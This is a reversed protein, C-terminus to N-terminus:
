YTGPREWQTQSTLSNFYYPTGDNTFQQSWGNPLTLPNAEVAVSTGGGGTYGEAGYGTSTQAGYGTSTTNATPSTFAAYGANSSPYTAAPSAVAPTSPSSMGGAWSAVAPQGYNSAPSAPSAWANAQAGGAGFSDFQRMELKNSDKVWTTSQQRHRSCFYIVIALVILAVIGGAVAAAIIIVMSNSSSSSGGGGPVPTVPDNPQGGPRTPDPTFTVIPTTPDSPLSGSKGSGDSLLIPATYDMYVTGVGNWAYSAADGLVAQLQAYAQKLESVQALQTPNLSNAQLFQAAHREAIATHEPKIQAPHFLTTRPEIMNMVTHDSTAGMGIEMLSNTIASTLRLTVIAVTSSPLAIDDLEMRDISLGAAVCLDTAITHGFDARDDPNNLFAVGTKIVFQTKLTWYLRDCKPGFWGPQCICQTCDGNANGNAGCGPDCKCTGTTKDYQYGARSCVCNANTGTPCEPDGNADAVIQFPALDGGAGCTTTCKSPTNCSIGQWGKACQCFTGSPQKTAACRGNTCSTADCKPTQCKDGTYNDPCICQGNSCTGSGCSKSSCSDGIAFLPSSGYISGSAFVTIFYDNGAPLNKMPLGDYGTGVTWSSSLRLPKNVILYRSVPNLGSKKGLVISVSLVKGTTNWQISLFDGFPIVGGVGVRGTGITVDFISPVETCNQGSFFPRCTCAGYTPSTKDGQECIGDKYGRKGYCVDVPNLCDQQTPLKPNGSCFSDDVTEQLVAANPSINACYVERTQTGPGCYPTCASWARAKWLYNPCLYTNCDRQAAPKSTQPCLGPASVAGANSLCTITALQVGGGCPKNCAGYTVNWYYSACPDTNCPISTALGYKADAADGDAGSINIDPCLSVNAARQGQWIQDHPMRCTLTRTQIGGGCIKNCDSFPDRHWHPCPDLPCTQQTFPASAAACDKIDVQTGTYDFCSLQRTQTGDGCGTPSTCRGWPGARYTPCDFTNCVSSTTPQVSSCQDNGLVVNPKDRYVCSVSRTYTGTGCTKSCAGFPGPLWTTPCQQTNCPESTPPKDADVCGSAPNLAQDVCDVTRTRTGDPGCTQSCAGWQGTRWNSQQCAQTACAAATAPKPKPNCKDDSVIDQPGVQICRVTRTKSGGGCIKDCNSYDGLLWDYTPCSQLSCQQTSTPKPGASACNGDAVAPGGVVNQNYCEVTRTQSGGGCTKDCVGYESTRWAFSDCLQTNCNQQTTPKVNDVCSGDSVASGLNNNAPGALSLDRCLIQRVQIGGGCRVPCAGWGDAPVPGGPTIVWTYRACIQLNCDESTAPKALQCQSADAPTDVGNETKICQVDRTRTPIPSTTTLRCTASCAGFNYSRWNYTGCPQENCPQTLAPVPLAKCATVFPAYTPDTNTSQFYFTKGNQVYQCQVTRTQVGGGCDKSCTVGFDSVQLTVPCNAIVCNQVSAPKPQDKCPGSVPDANLANTRGTDGNEYCQVLRTQTPTTGPSKCDASCFGFAPAYWSYSCGGLCTQSTAQKVLNSCFSDSVTRGLSDRCAAVRVINGQVNCSTASCTGYPGYAWNYVQTNVPPQTVVPPATTSGPVPPNTAPPATVPPLTPNGGGPNYKTPVAPVPAGVCRGKSCVGYGNTSGTGECVAGDPVIGFSSAQASPPYRCNAVGSFTCGFNCGDATALGPYPSIKQNPCQATNSYKTCGDATCEGANCYSSGGPCGYYTSRYLCTAANCCPNSNGKGPTCQGGSVILCTRLDCCGSSDDCDEGPELIGNGCTATWPKFYETFYQRTSGMSATLQPCIKPRTLVPHFMAIGPIGTEPRPYKGTQTYDMIGGVQGTIQSDGQTGDQGFTHPAGLNHGVEHAITLWHSSSYSSVGCGNGSRAGITGVWALGVTGAPPFCNTFIHAEAAKVGQAKNWATLDNLHANITYGQDQDCKAGTSLPSKNWAEGGSSSRIQTNIVLNFIGIQPVYVANILAITQDIAAQANDISNYIKYYGWDALAIFTQSKINSGTIGPWCAQGQGDDLWRCPLGNCIGNSPDNIVQLLQRGIKAPSTEDTHTQLTVPDIVGCSHTNEAKLSSYKYAVMGHPSSTAMSHYHSTAMEQAHQEVHDFAIMDDKTFIIGQFTGDRRFTVIAYKDTTKKRHTRYTTLPAPESGMDHDMTSNAAKLETVLHLSLYHTEGMAKVTLHIHEPFHLTLGNFTRMRRSAYPYTVHSLLGSGRQVSMTNYLHSDEHQLHYSEVYEIHHIAQSTFSPRQFTQPLDSSSSSISSSTVTTLTICALIALLIAIRGM